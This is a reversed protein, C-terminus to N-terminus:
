PVDSPFMNEVETIQKDARLLAMSDIKVMGLWM